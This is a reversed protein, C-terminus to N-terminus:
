RVYAVRYDISRRFIWQDSKDVPQFSQDRENEVVCSKVITDDWTGDFFSIDQRILDAIENAERQTLADVDVQVIKDLDAIEGTLSYDPQGGIVSIISRPFNDKENQPVRSPYIRNSLRNGITPRTNLYTGLKHGIM